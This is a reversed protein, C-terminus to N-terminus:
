SSLAHRWASETRADFAVLLCREVSTAAERLARVSVACAPLLPYRYAGTSLSPFAVIAARVEDCLRLSQRYASALLEAAPEDVGFRPGVAHVVHRVPAPLDFAPTIVADGPPCPALPRLARLLQPGAARHVAADVGGGGVLQSNAATVLVDAAVTTIDGAIVEIRM